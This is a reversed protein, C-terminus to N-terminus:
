GSEACLIASLGGFGYWIRSDSEDSFRVDSFRVLGFFPSTRVCSRWFDSSDQCRQGAERSLVQRGWPSPSRSPLDPRYLAGRTAPGCVGRVVCVGTGHMGGRKWDQAHGSGIRGVPRTSGRRVEHKRTREGTTRHHERSAPMTDRRRGM